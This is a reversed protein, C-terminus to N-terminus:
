GGSVNQSSPRAAASNDIAGHFISLTSRSAVAKRTGTSVHGSQRRTTPEPAAIPAIRAVSSSKWDHYRSCEHIPTATNM